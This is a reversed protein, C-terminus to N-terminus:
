TYNWDKDAMIVNLLRDSLVRSYKCWPTYYGELAFEFTVM